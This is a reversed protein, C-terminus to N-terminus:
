VKEQHTIGYGRGARAPIHAIFRDQGGITGYGSNRDLLTVCLRKVGGQTTMKDASVINVTASVMRLRENLISSCDFLEQCNLRRWTATM